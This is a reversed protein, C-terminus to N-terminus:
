LVVNLTIVLLVLSSVLGIVQSYNHAIVSIETQNQSKVLLDIKTQNFTVATHQDLSEINFTVV